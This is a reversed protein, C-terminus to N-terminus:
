RSVWMITMTCSTDTIISTNLSGGSDQYGYLEVYDGINLYVYHLRIPVECTGVPNAPLYCGSGNIAVGNVAWRGGRRNTTNAQWGTAGTIQYWGAYTAYFRSTNTSDHGDPIDYIEEDFTIATNTGTNVAQVAATQRFFGMPRTLLFDLPDRVFANMESTTSIGDPFDHSAPVIVAM